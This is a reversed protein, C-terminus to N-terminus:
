LEGIRIWVQDLGLRFSFKQMLPRCIVYRDNIKQTLAFCSVRFQIM